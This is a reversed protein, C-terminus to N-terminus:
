TSRSLSSKTNERSSFTQALGAALRGQLRLSLLELEKRKKMKREGVSETVVQMSGERMDLAEAVQLVFSEHEEESIGEHATLCRDLLSIAVQKRRATRNM